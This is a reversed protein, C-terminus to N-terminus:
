NNPNKHELQRLQNELRRVEKFMVRLEQREQASADEEGDEEAESDDPIVFDVEGGKEIFDVLKRVASTLENVKDGEKDTDLGIERITTNVIKNVGTDKEAKAAAELAKEAAANSLELAKVEQAKRRIDHVKEILNLAQLIISSTTKAIAYVSLLTIIISGKSAGVVRISEPAEGHAMSIGRGIEWWTKGWFKFETLNSLHAEKTFHVRLVVAEEPEVVSEVNIIRGIVEMTQNSWQIGENIQKFATNFHRAASAIDLANRYLTDEVFDIGLHGVRKAIGVKELVEIQGSSLETLPVKRLTSILDDRQGEFPQQQQNPQANRQLASHLAQFKNAIQKEVIEADIWTTLDYLEEVQM